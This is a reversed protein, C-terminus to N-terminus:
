VKYIGVCHEGDDAQGSVYHKGDDCVFFLEDKTDAQLEVSGEMRCTFGSDLEVTDGAKLQSLKAYPRGSIDSYIPDSM